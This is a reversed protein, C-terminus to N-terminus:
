VKFYDIKTKLTEISEIVQDVESAMVDSEDANHQSLETINKVSNLTEELSEEEQQLYSQVAKTKTQVVAARSTVSNNASM